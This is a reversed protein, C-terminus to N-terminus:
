PVPVDPAGLVPVRLLHDADVVLGAVGDRLISAARRPRIRRPPRRPRRRISRRSRCPPDAGRGAGCDQDVGASPAPHADDGVRDAGGVIRFILPDVASGSGARPGARSPSSSRRGRRRGPPRCAAPRSGRGRTPARSARGRRSPGQDAGIAAGLQDRRARPLDVVDRPAPSM